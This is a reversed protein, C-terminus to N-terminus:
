FNALFRLWIQAQRHKYGVDIEVRENLITIVYMLSVAVRQCGGYCCIESITHYLTVQIKKIVYGILNLYLTIGLEIKRSERYTSIQM